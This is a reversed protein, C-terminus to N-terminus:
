RSRTAWSAELERTKRDLDALQETTLLTEAPGFLDDEEDGFHGQFIWHLRRVTEWLETMQGPTPHSGAARLGDSLRQRQANVEEHAQDLVALAARLEAHRAQIEVHQELLEEVTTTTADDLCLAPFLIDEEKAMHLELRQEMFTELHLLKTLADAVLDADEPARAAEEAAVRAADATADIVLHERVLGAMPELTIEIETPL